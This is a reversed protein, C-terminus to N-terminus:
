GLFDAHSLLPGSSQGFDPCKFLQYLEAVSLIHKKSRLIQEIEFHYPELKSEKTFYSILTKEDMQVLDDNKFALKSSYNVLISQLEGEMMRYNSNSMESANQHGVYLQLRRAKMNISNILDFMALMKQPSKTWGERTRDIRSILSVLAAKDKQWDADSAYIDELRWKFETPVDKRPTNPYNPIKATQASLIGTFFWMLCLWLSITRKTM